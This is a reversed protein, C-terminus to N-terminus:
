QSLFRIIILVVIIVPLLDVLRGAHRVGPLVSLSFFSLLWGVTLTVIILELL